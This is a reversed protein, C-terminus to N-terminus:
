PPPAVPAGAPMPYVSALQSQGQESQAMERGSIMGLFFVAASLGLLGILVLFGGGPGIEFRM